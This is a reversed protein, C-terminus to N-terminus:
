WELLISYDNTLKFLLSPQSLSFTVLFYNTITKKSNSGTRMGFRQCLVSCIFATSSFTSFSHVTTLERKLPTFSYSTTTQYVLDFSCFLQLIFQAARSDNRMWGILDNSEPTSTMMLLSSFCPCRYRRWFVIVQNTSHTVFRTAGFKRPLKIERISSKTPKAPLFTRWNPM